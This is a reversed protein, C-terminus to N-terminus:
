ENRSKETQVNNYRNTSISLLKADIEVHLQIKIARAVYCRFRPMENQEQCFSHKMNPRTQANRLLYVRYKDYRWCSSKNVTFQVSFALRLHCEPGLNVGKIIGYLARCRGLALM